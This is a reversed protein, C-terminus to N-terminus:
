RQRMAAVQQEHQVTSETMHVDAVEAVFIYVNIRPPNDILSVLEILLGGRRNDAVRKPRGRRLRHKCATAVMLVVKKAVRNAFRHFARDLQPPLSVGLLM